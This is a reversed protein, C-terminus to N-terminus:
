KKEQNLKPEQSKDLLRLEEDTVFRSTGSDFMSGVRVFYRKLANLPFFILALVTILSIGVLFVCKVYLLFIIELLFNWYGKTHLSTYDGDNKGDNFYRIHETFEKILNSSTRKLVDTLGRYLDLMM